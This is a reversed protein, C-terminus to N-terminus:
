YKAASFTLGRGILLIYSQFILVRDFTKRSVFFILTYNRLCFTGFDNISSNSSFRVKGTGKPSGEEVYRVAGKGERTPNDVSGESQSVGEKGGGGGRYSM